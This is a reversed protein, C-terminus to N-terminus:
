LMWRAEEQEEEDEEVTAFLIPALDDAKVENIPTNILAQLTAYQLLSGGEDSQMHAPKGASDLREFLSSSVFPAVICFCLPSMPDYRKILLLPVWHYGLRWIQVNIQGAREALQQLAAGAIADDTSIVDTMGNDITPSTIDM